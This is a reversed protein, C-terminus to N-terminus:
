LSLLHALELMAEDPGKTLGVCQELPTAAVRDDVLGILVGHEGAAMSEVASVGLRTGLLRDAATPTGGRQVHGLITVRVHYEAGLPHSRFAEALRQADFAAGEAVVVLAHDKRRHHGVVTAFLEDPDVPREPIVVAEAGGAIAAMLALYGCKRGMVEVLSIRRLSYATVRLRDIAELAINVATDAGITVDSGVLDNDITSAVGVVPFGLKALEYSGCQSGNGGIVVLGDVANEELVGLGRKPGDPAEFDECRSSGLVTGAQQMIGGVDRSGLPVLQAALLGRFGHRVGAIEWERDVATRVVARITANMGPADGGSTLVAIRKM